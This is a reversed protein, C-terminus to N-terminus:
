YTILAQTEIPGFKSFDIVPAAPLAYAHWRKASANIPKECFSACRRKYYAAKSWQRAGYDLNVGLERALRRVGPGAHVDSTSQM